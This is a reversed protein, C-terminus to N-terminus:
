GLRLTTVCTPDDPGTALPVSGTRGDYGVEITGEVDRPLWYGVFGNPQTTTTEDVLVAGDDTTVTVDVEREVLEGQCTTLSHYYCEHTTEVFPAVAVYREDEPLDVTVEATGDSLLLEGARVSALLGTPRAEAPLRDLHDVIERGTMGTLGYADQLPADAGAATGDSTTQACATLALLAATATAAVTWTRGM